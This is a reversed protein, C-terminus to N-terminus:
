REDERDIRESENKRKKGGNEEKGGMLVLADCHTKTREDDENKSNAWANGGLTAEKLYRHTILMPMFQLSSPKWSLPHSIEPKQIHQIWNHGWFPWFVAPDGSVNVKVPTLPWVHYIRANKENIQVTKLM